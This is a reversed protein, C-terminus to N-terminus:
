FLANRARSCASAWLRVTTTSTTPGTSPRGLTTEWWRWVSYTPLVTRIFLLRKEGPTQARTLYGVIENRNNIATPYPSLNERVKIVHKMGESRNWIFGQKVGEEGQFTSTGVVNGLDNLNTAESYDEGLTGLPQMGYAAEWVFAEYNDGMRKTGIVMGSNNIKVTNIPLEQSPLLDELVLPRNYSNCLFVAYHLGDEVTKTIGVVQGLDNIGHFVSRAGSRAILKKVGQDRAWIFGRKGAGGVVLGANNIDKPFGLGPLQTGIDYLGASPEWFFLHSGGGAIKSRGAVEGSNNIASALSFATDTIGLNSVHYNLVKGSLSLVIQPTLPATTHITPTAASFGSMEPDFGVQIELSEFAGINLPFSLPTLLHFGNKPLGSIGTLQFPKDSCNNLTFSWEARSGPRIQGFDHVTQAPAIDPRFDLLLPYMAYRFDTVRVMREKIETTTGGPGTVTHRVTYTGFRTYTHKPNPLTSREGDGFDWEHSVDNRVPSTFHVALPITEEPPIPKSTRRRSCLRLRHLRHLFAWSFSSRSFFVFNLTTIGCLARGGLPIRPHSFVLIDNSM